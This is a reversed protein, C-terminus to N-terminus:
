GTPGLTATGSALDLTGELGAAGRFALRGQEASAEVAEGHPANAISVVGTGPVDVVKQTQTGAALNQRVIVFRGTAPDDGAAGAYVAVLTRGDSILWGNAPRLIAPSIPVPVDPGLVRAPIRVASPTPVPAREPSEVADARPFSHRIPTVKEDPVTIGLERIYSDPTGALAAAGFAILVLAVLSGLIGPRKKRAFSTSM